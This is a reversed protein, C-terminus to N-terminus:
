IFQLFIVDQIETSSHLSCVQINKTLRNATQWASVHQQILVPIFLQQTETSKSNNKNDM